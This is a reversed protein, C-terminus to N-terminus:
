MKMRSKVGPKLPNLLSLQLVLRSVNSNQSKTGKKDSTQPFHNGPKLITLWLGTMGVCEWEKGHRLSGAPECLEFYRPGNKTEQEPYAWVTSPWDCPLNSWYGPRHNASCLRLKSWALSLFRARFAQYKLLLTSVQHFCISIQFMWEITYIHYHSQKGSKQNLMVFTCVMHIIRKWWVLGFWSAIYASLCFKMWYM